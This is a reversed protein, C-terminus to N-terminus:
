ARAPVVSVPKGDLKRWVTRFEADYTWVTVSHRSALLILMADCFDPAHEAYQALWEFIEDWWPEVAVMERVTMQELLHQLRRRQAASQLLFCCESLVVGTVVFPPALKRLDRAARAHLRDRKDVLAVLVNTDILIV